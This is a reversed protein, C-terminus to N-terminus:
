TVEIVLKVFLKTRRQQSNITNLDIYVMKKIFIFDLELGVMIDCSKKFVNRFRFSLKLPYNIDILGSKIHIISLSRNMSGLQENHM